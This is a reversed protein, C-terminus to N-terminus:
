GREDYHPEIWWKAFHSSGDEDWVILFKANGVWNAIGRGYLYVSAKLAYRDEYAVCQIDYFGRHNCGYGGDYEMDPNYTEFVIEDDLYECYAIYTNEKEDKTIVVDIFDQTEETPIEMKEMSHDKYKLIRNYWDGSGGCGTGAAGFVLETYGDNDLDTGFVYLGRQFAFDEDYFRYPKEDNMYFYIYGNGYCHSNHAKVMIAFDEQGNRDFDDIVFGRFEAVDNQIVKDKCLMKFYDEAKMKDLGLSEAKEYFAKENEANLEKSKEDSLVDFEAALNYKIVDGTGCDVLASKTIRYHGDPLIGHFYTWNVDWDLSKDPLLSYGIADFAADDIIYKVQHWEGPKRVGNEREGDKWSQLEYDDGFAIEKDTSNTCVINVGEATVSSVKMTIGELEDVKEIYMKGYSEELTKLRAWEKFLQINLNQVRNKLNDNFHGAGLVTATIKQENIEKGCATYVITIIGVLLLCRYVRCFMKEM